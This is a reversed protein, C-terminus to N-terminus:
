VKIKARHKIQESYIYMRISAQYGEPLNIFRAGYGKDGDECDQVRVIEAYASFPKEAKDFVLEVIQNEDFVDRTKFFLGSASIDKVECEYELQKRKVKSADKLNEEYVKWLMTTFSTKVKFENRRQVVGLIEVPEIVIEYNYPVDNSRAFEKMAAECTVLGYVDNELTTIFKSGIREMLDDNVILTLTKEGFKGEAKVKGIPVGKDDFIEASKYEDFMNEKM